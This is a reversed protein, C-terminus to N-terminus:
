STARTTPADTPFLMSHCAHPPEPAGAGHEGGGASGQPTAVPGLCHLALARQPRQHVLPHRGELLHGPEFEFAIRCDRGAAAILHAVVDDVLEVLIEWRLFEGPQLRGQAAEPKERIRDVQSLGERVDERFLDASM